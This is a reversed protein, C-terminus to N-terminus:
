GPHATSQLSTTNTDTAHLMLDDVGLRLTPLPSTAPMMAQEESAVPTRAFIWSRYLATHRYPKNHTTDFVSDLAHARTWVGLLTAFHEFGDRLDTNLIVQIVDATLLLLLVALGGFVLAPMAALLAEPVLWLWLLGSTALWILDAPLHTPHLPKFARIYHKQIHAQRAETQRPPTDQALAKLGKLTLCPTWLHNYRRMCTLVHDPTPRHRVFQEELRLQKLTRQTWLIRRVKRQGYGVLALLLLLVMWGSEVTAVVIVACPVIAATGLVTARRIRRVQHRMAAIHAFLHRSMTFPPLPPTSAKSLPLM